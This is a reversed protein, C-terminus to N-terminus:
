EHAEKAYEYAKIIESRIYESNLNTMYNSVIGVIKDIKKDIKLYKNM